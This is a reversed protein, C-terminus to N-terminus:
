LGDFAKEIPASFKDALKSLENRYDELADFEAQHADVLGSMKEAMQMQKRFLAKDIYLSRVDKQIPTQTLEEGYEALTREVQRLPQHTDGM